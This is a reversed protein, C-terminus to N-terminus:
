SNRKLSKILYISLLPFPFGKARQSPLRFLDAPMFQNEMAHSRCFHTDKSSAKVLGTGPWNMFM